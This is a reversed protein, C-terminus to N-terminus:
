FDRKGRINKTFCIVKSMFKLLPGGSNESLDYLANAYNSFPSIAYNTGIREMM